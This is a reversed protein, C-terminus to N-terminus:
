EFATRHLLANELTSPDLYEVASGAPLGMATRTLKLTSGEMRANLHDRIFLATADGEITADFALILEQTNERAVREFLSGLRIQGPGVGSLPSLLGQLVHYRWNHAKFKELALVDPADRVVCLRTETRNSDTCLPCHGADAWFHCTPCFSVEQGVAELARTFAAMRGSGGRLLAVAYRLATKEGVGPLKSM